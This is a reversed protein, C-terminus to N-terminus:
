EPVTALSSMAAVVVNSGVTSTGFGELGNNTFKNFQINVDNLGDSGIGVFNNHFHNGEFLLNASSQHSQHVYEM